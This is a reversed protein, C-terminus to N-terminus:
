TRATRPAHPIFFLRKRFEVEGKAHTPFPRPRGAQAIEAETAMLEALRGAAGAAAQFEGWGESLEGMSAAALVSYFVFQTLEGGSIAGSM